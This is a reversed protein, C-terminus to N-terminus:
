ASQRLLLRQYPELAQDFARRAVKREAATWEVNEGFPEIFNM